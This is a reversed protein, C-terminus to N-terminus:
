ATYNLKVCLMQSPQKFGWQWFYLVRTLHSYEMYQTDVSHDEPIHCQTTLCIHVLTKSSDERRDQACLCWMERFCETDTHCGVHCRMGSAKFISEVIKNPVLTKGTWQLNWHELFIEHVAFAMCTLVFVGYTFNYILCQRAPFAMCYSQLVSLTFTLSTFNDRQM